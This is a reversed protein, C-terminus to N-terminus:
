FIGILLFYTEVKSPNESDKQVLMAKWVDGYSGYAFSYAETKVVQGTLVPFTQHVHLPSSPSLYTELPM